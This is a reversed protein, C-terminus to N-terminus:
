KRLQVIKIANLKCESEFRIRNKDNVDLYDSPFDKEKKKEIDANDKRM